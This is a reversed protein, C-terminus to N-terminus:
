EQYRRVCFFRFVHLSIHHSANIQQKRYKHIERRGNLDTAFGTGDQWLPVKCLVVTHTQAVGAQWVANRPMPICTGMPFAGLPVAQEGLLIGVSSHRGLPTM